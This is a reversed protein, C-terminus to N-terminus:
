SNVPPDTASPRGAFSYRVIGSADVRFYRTGTFGLSVPDAYCEFSTTDALPISYTYGAKVRGETWTPDLFETGPGDTSQTLDAFRGYSNKAANYATQAGAIVRLEQIASAENTQIRARLLSPIAIAAILGIIATVIMMELLTFGSSKNKKQTQM